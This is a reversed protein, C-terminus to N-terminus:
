KDVNIVAMRRYNTNGGGFTGNTPRVLGFKGMPEWTVHGDAWLFNAGDGHAKRNWYRWDGNGYHDSWYSDPGSAPETNTGSSGGYVVEILAIKEAPNRLMGPKAYAAPWQHTAVDSGCMGGYTRLKRDNLGWISWHDYGVLLMAYTINQNIVGGDLWNPCYLRARSSLAPTASVERRDRILNARVLLQDWYRGDASDIKPWGYDKGLAFANCQSAYANLYIGIQRMNSACQVSRAAAQAKSLAPMLIAILLAVIGIVVLLEVLTFASPRKSSAPHQPM